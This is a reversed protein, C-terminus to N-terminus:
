NLWWWQPLTEIRVKGQIYTPPSRLVQPAETSMAPTHRTDHISKEQQQTLSLVASSMAATGCCDSLCSPNEKRYSNNGNAMHLYQQGTGEHAGVKNRALLVFHLSASFFYSDLCFLASLITSCVLSWKPYKRKNNENFPKRTKTRKFHTLM